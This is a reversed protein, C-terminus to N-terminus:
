GPTESSASPKRRAPRGCPPHSPASGSPPMEARMRDRYGEPAKAFYTADQRRMVARPKVPADHTAVTSVIYGEMEDSDPDFEELWDGAAAFRELTEDLHPDRYSYFRGFGTPARRFATGYAGGKVRVENWLYDLTLVNAAVSWTGSYEGLVNLNAGRAAYVVDTPVTFAERLVAAEPIRLRSEGDAAASAGGGALGWDGAAEWFRAYDEESGGFSALFGEGSFACARLSELHECLGAARMDFDEILDCLFSYFDVGAQQESLKGAPYLYSGLRGMAWSHGSNAFSQEMAVRRQLLIDRIREADDFRTHEWIERPIAALNGIEESLSSASVTLKVSVDAPDNWDVHNEVFFRLSGLHSRQWTDVEAPTRDETGLAGLLMCLITFYPQDEWSFRGLDFYGYLYAINRTPMIHALCPLPGDERLEFPPDPRAPGIDAVHLQPLKALDEPADPAEQRLRLAAVDERIKAVDEAALEAAKRALERAEEGGGEERMPVVDVLAKHTSDCILEKLVREFYGEDLGERMHALPEEYRLCSTADGDDYLWGSLANMALAVGDAMGRDRERLDFAMQSLSAELMDRPIGERVLRAAQEEVVRQFEKAVGPKAHRLVFLASDCAQSDMLYATCDGGLDADLLARKIPSENGGMLADMLVDAALVREFDHPAGVAYGLGVTANEPATPMPVHVLDPMCPDYSGMPNPPADTRPEEVGLYKEDLFALMRPADLDGYLVIYSNDLRYHRAHADLYDEYLLTPIKRPHGGSEFAYCSKPFLARNMAHYLVSGPESLAGKMENFVVGNYRLDADDEGLEYHWGEQEFIEREQYIRPHLVADLYVDTLNLLDQMNTSAVPYMTKDPFTLANLFTQMSTKLLNVFPEKVPFKRSGCLVSHELIHFVGTDDAPPTRFAISFAKNEDENRLYLLRAGSKRHRMVIAEGDIEALAERSEVTFGHLKEGPEFMSRGKELHPRPFLTGRM